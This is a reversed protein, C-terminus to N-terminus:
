KRWQARGRRQVAVQGRLMESTENPVTTGMPEVALSSGLLIWLQTANSQAHSSLAGGHTLETVPTAFDQAKQPLRKCLNCLVLVKWTSATEEPQLPICIQFPQNYVVLALDPGEPLCAETLCQDSHAGIM